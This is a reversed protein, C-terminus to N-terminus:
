APFPKRWAPLENLRDHWRAVEPFEGLPIYAQEAYPLTIGVAFDTITLTDGLLYKRGHLHDNLIASYKRVYGTAEEVEEPDVPGIGFKPKIVYEFYLTGTYRTFHQLDWSLWRLMEVLKDDSPWLDSGAARALFGMIANSEWITGGDHTLVPVKGNPNMALFEPTKHEGKPLSVSVFEVPSNLHRAVACAKRPNLTDSYYLKM